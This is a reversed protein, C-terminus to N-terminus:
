ASSDVVTNDDILDQRLKKNKRKSSTATRNPEKLGAIIMWLAIM